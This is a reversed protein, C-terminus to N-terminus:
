EKRGDVFAAIQRRDEIEGISIEGEPQGGILM